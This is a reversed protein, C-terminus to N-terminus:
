CCITNSVSQNYWFASDNWRYTRLQSRKYHYIKIWKILLFNSIIIRFIYWFLGSILIFRWLFPHVSRRFLFLLNAHPLWCYLKEKCKIENFSVIILFRSIEKKRSRVIFNIRGTTKGSNSQQTKHLTRSWCYFIQERFSNLFTYKALYWITFFSINIPQMLFM